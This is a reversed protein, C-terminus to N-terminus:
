PNFFRVECSVRGGIVRPDTDDTVYAIFNADNRNIIAYGGPFTLLKGGAPIAQEVKDMLNLRETMAPTWSEASGRRHWSHVTLIGSGLLSGEGIDVTFYPLEAQDEVCGALYVPLGFSAWFTMWAKHFETM